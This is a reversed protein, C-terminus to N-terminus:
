TLSVYRSLIPTNAGHPERDSSGGVGAGDEDGLAGDRSPGERDDAGVPDGRHRRTPCRPDRPERGGRTAVRGRRRPDRVCRDAKANVAFGSGGGRGEGGPGEGEGGGAGGQVRAAPIVTVGNREYPEGFVRRVTMTETAREITERVGTEAM